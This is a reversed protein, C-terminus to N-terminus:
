LSYHDHGTSLLWVWFVMTLVHAVVNPALGSMTAVGPNLAATLRSFYLQM